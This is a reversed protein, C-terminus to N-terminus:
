ETTGTLSFRELPASSGSLIEVPGALDLKAFRHTEVLAKLASTASSGTAVLRVLDKAQITLSEVAVDPPLARSLLLLTAGADPFRGDLTDLLGLTTQLQEAESRLRLSAAARAELTVLREKLSGVRQAEFRKGLVLASFFMLISAVVLGLSIAKDFRGVWHFLGQPRPPALRLWGIRESWGVREPANEEPPVEKPPVLGILPVGAAQFVAEYAAAVSKPIIVVRVDWQWGKGVAGESAQAAEADALANPTRVARWLLHVHELRWPILQEVELTLAQGVMRRPIPPLTITRESVSAYRLLAWVETGEGLAHSDWSRRIAEAVESGFTPGPGVCQADIDFVALQKRKRALRGHPQPHCDVTVAYPNEM